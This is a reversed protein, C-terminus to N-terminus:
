TKMKYTFLRPFKSVVSVLSSTITEVCVRPATIEVDTELPIGLVKVNLRPMCNWAKKRVEDVRVGFNTM